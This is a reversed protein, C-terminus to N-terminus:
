KIKFDDYENWDHYKCNKELLKPQCDYKIIDFENMEFVPKSILPGLKSLM